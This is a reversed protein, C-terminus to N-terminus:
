EINHDQSSNMSINDFEAMQTTYLGDENGVPCCKCKSGKQMM